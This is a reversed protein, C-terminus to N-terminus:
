FKKEFAELVEVHKRNNEKIKEKLSKRAVEIDEHAKEFKVNFKAQISELDTDLRKNISQSFETVKEQMEKNKKQILQYSGAM